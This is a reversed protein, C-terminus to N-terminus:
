LSVAIDHLDSASLNNDADLLTYFVGGNVWAANSESIYITLGQGKAIAYDDGWQKKAYNALVATSDWNSKEESLTFKQGQDNKFAMTIKGNEEKVLGDLRYSAPVYSPYANEIGAQMAAVRVSIDPLNLHVLYGLLGLSIVMMVGAIALRRQKFFGAKKQVAEGFQVTARGEDAGDDNMTAVKRLAQQIARDKREQASMTPQVEQKRAEARLQQRKAMRAKAAAVMRNKQQKEAPQAVKPAVAKKTALDQKQAGESAKKVSLPALRVSHQKELLARAQKQSPSFGTSQIKTAVKVVPKAVVPRKVFRRNLTTSKQVRRHDMTSAHRTSNGASRKFGDM